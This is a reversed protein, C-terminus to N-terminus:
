QFDQWTLNYKLDPTAAPVVVGVLAEGTEDEVYHNAATAMKNLVHQALVLNPVNVRNAM